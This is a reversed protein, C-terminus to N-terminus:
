WCLQIMMVHMCVHFLSIICVTVDGAVATFLFREKKWSSSDMAGREFLIAAM